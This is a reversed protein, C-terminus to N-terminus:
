RAYNQEQPFPRIGAACVPATSLYRHLGAQRFAERVAHKRRHITSRAGLSSATVSVSNFMLDHALVALHPVNALVAEVDLHLHLLEAEPRSRRGMRLEYTDQSVRDPREIETGHDDVVPLESFACVIGGGRKAATATELISMARRRCIMTAFTAPSSRAPDHSGSREIWHLFLEQQVDERDYGYRRLLHAARVAEFRIARVVAPPLIMPTDTM